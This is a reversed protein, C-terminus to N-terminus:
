SRKKLNELERKEANAEEKFFSAILIVLLIPVTILLFSKPWKIFIGTFDIICLILYSIFMLWKTM